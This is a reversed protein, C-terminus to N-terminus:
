PGSQTAQWTFVDGPNVCSYQGQGFNAGALASQNMNGTWNAREQNYPCISTFKISGFNLDVTGSLAGDRSSVVGNRIILYNPLNNTEVGGSGALKYFLNYTGNYKTGSSPSPSPSPSPAPSASPVATGSIPLTNTGSTQDGVVTLTGTCPGTTTPAYFQTVQQSGGPPITGSTWSASFAGPACGPITMNTITLTSNGTNTITFVASATKGVEVNGFSLPGGSVSIIRTPAVGPALVGIASIAITNTGSTQDGNVTLTGSYDRAATPSFKLNVQQSAGAAITGSTFSSSFADAIGTPLTLSSITLPANGSNTITMTASANQGVQVSGYALNGSLSIVRTGSAPAPSPSSPSSPSSGGGCAIEVAFLLAVAVLRSLKIGVRTL